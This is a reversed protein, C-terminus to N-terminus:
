QEVKYSPPIRLYNLLYKSLEAFLPVVSSEAYQVGRPHDLKVLMVFQPNDVPAYGVFSHDNNNALYKGGEAVEATGTKGAIYYGPIAAGKAHGSKVVSALMASLTIATQPTIVQRVFQPQTKKVKGDPYRIEDVIYPKMLKGQNAIASFAATVQIPTVMIGQGFSATAMSLEQGDSLSKISGATETELEIGTLQGFGFNKFYERFLDQGVKRAAFIAGTNLSNELVETMTKKGHAKKDFNYITYKGFVEKGSDEYTMAPTVKGADIATAMTIGKMISGPEYSEFISYNNYAKIDKVENYKNPDFDPYNCMALVAGTKPNMVIVSGSDAGHKLVTAELSTCVTFQISRDLTLVIDAGNKQDAKLRQAIPILRGTADREFTYSGKVGALENEFYGEIGYRGVLKDGKYGVFGVVQSGVNKEPYYRQIEEEFRIGDLKLDEIQKKQDEDLKHKLPEYIDKAKSMKRILEQEDMALLPALVKATSTPDKIENPVGYALYEKRNLAIAFLKDNSAQYDHIYIDGRDPILENEVLHQRQAQDAYKQHDIVQLIFLKVVILGILLFFAISLITLRDAKEQRKLDHHHASRKYM